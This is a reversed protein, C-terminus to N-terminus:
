IIEVHEYTLINGHEYVIESNTNVKLCDDGHFYTLINALEFVVESDTNVKRPDHGIYYTHIILNTGIKM